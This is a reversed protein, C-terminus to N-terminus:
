EPRDNCRLARVASYEGHSDGWPVDIEGPMGEQMIVRMSNFVAMNKKNERCDKGLLVIRKGEFFFLVIRESFIYSSRFLSTRFGQWTWVFLAQGRCYTLM